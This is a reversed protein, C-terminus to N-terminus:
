IFPIINNITKLTAVAIRFAMLAMFMFLIPLLPKIPIIWLAMSIFDLIPDLVSNNFNWQINEIPMLIFDILNFLVGLLGDVIM